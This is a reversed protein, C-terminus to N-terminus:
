MDQGLAAPFEGQGGFAEQVGTRGQRQPPQVALFQQFAQFLGGTLPFGQLGGDVQFLQPVQQDLLILRAGRRFQRLQPEAAGLGVFHRGGAAAQPFVAEEELM